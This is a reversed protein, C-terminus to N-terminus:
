QRIAELEITIPTEDGVWGNEVAYTMGFESRKIITSASIGIVYNNGFPYEDSKNWTVELIVPKTVGRLTLDGTVTGTTDGTAESSTMVFHIDPYDEVFLFDKSRAHGDRKEHNTFVSAAKITVDVNSLERTEEDFVFSGGGELFMGLVPAYGIHMSSFGISFHAPDIEYTAPEAMTQMPPLALATVFAITSLRM